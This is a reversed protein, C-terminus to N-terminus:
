VVQFKLFDTHNSLEQCLQCYSADDKILISITFGTLGHFGPDGNMTTDEPGFQGGKLIEFSACYAALTEKNWIKSAPFEAGDDLALNPKQDALDIVLHKGHRIATVLTDRLHEQAQVATLSGDEVKKIKRFFEYVSISNTYQIMSEAVPNAYFLIGHKNADKLLPQM